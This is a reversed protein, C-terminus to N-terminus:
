KKLPYLSFLDEEKIWGKTHQYKALAWGNKKEYVRVVDRKVIYALRKSKVDPERHFYAKPASVVRVEMWGGPSDLLFNNGREVDFYHAMSGPPLEKLRIFLDLKGPEPLKLEGAIQDQTGPYWTTIRYKDGERTGYLFFICCILPKKTREDYGVCNGFYGTIMGEKNNVGLIFNGNEYIGSGGEAQALALSRALILPGALFLLLHSFFRRWCM